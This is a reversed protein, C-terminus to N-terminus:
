EEIEIVQKSEISPFKLTIQPYIFKICSIIGLFKEKDAKVASVGEHVIQNRLDKCQIANLLIEKPVLDYFLGFIRTDLDLKNNFKNIQTQFNNDANVKKFRRNMAIELATIANVIARSYNKNDWEEHARNLIELAPDPTFDTQVLKRIDEWDECTLYSLYKEDDWIEGVIHEVLQNPIFDQRTTDSKTKWRLKIRRCYSGISQNLSDWKHFPRLWYQGYNIRLIDVFIIIPPALMKAIRKGLNVYLDNGQLNQTMVELEEQTIDNMEFSGFLYGGSLLYQKSIRSSDVEKKQADYIIRGNKVFGRKEFWVKIKISEKFAQLIIASKENDPLWKHFLPGKFWTEFFHSELDIIFSFEVKVM